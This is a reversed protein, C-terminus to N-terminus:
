HWFICTMNFIFLVSMGTQESQGLRIHGECVRVDLFREDCLRCRFTFGDHDYHGLPSNDPFMDDDTEPEYINFYAHSAM